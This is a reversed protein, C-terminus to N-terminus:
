DYENHNRDYVITPRWDMSWCGAGGSVADVWGLLIHDRNVHGTHGDPPIVVGSGDLGGIEKALTRYQFVTANYKDESQPMGICGHFIYKSYRPGDIILSQVHQVHEHPPITVLASDLMELRLCDLSPLASPLLSGTTHDGLVYLRRLNPYRSRCAQEDIPGHEDFVGLVLVKQELAVLDRLLPFQVSAPVHSMHYTWRNDVMNTKYEVDIGFLTLSRLSPAATSIIFPTLREAENEADSRNRYTLGRPIRFKGVLALHEIPLFSTAYEGGDVAEKLFSAFAVAKEATPLCIVRVLHRRAATQFHSCVVMVSSLAAPANRPSLFAVWELIRDLVEVPCRQISM